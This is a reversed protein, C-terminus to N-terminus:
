DSRHGSGFIDRELEAYVILDPTILPVLTGTAFAQWTSGGNLIKLRKRVQVYIGGALKKINDEDIGREPAGAIAHQKIALVEDIADVHGTQECLKQLVEDDLLFAEIHRRSLVRVNDRVLQQVEDANLDDRDRIRSVKTGPAITQLAWGVGLRDTAVDLSNGVSVFDVEPHTAAFIRRYCAADFESSADAASTRLRGECLVVEAPALLSALDGLAVDLTRAWFGRDASVPEIVVAADFNHGEMDIFAVEAPRQQAIDWAAKMFGISHSALWLQCNEPLLDLIVDLLRAQVRTNLHVEPEDICWITDDFYERKVVIDLLLDFTAKEGASLNKYLFGDSAGKRFYFSGQQEVGAGIAGVGTLELDPFVRRLSAAVRGILRERLEGKSTSDPLAADYVSDLTLMVMRQYNESVSIDPDVLRGVRPNALPSPLRAFNSVNFDAENRFATRIYVCKQVAPPDVPEGEHFALKVHTTWPIAPSGVKAGYTEDWSAPAGHASQWTRLGDFLSSKGVGNPGALIVLRSSSPVDKITTNTFRKFGTLQLEALHVNEEEEPVQGSRPVDIPDVSASTM